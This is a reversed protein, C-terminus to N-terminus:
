NVARRYESIIGDREKIQVGYRDCLELLAVETNVACWLGIEDKRIDPYRLALLGGLQTEHAAIKRPHFDHRVVKGPGIVALVKARLEPHDKLEQWGLNVQENFRFIMEYQELASAIGASWIPLIYGLMRDLEKREAEQHRFAAYVELNHADLHKLVVNINIKYDVM